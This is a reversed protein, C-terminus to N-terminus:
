AKNLCATRYIFDMDRLRYYTVYQIDLKYNFRIENTSGFKIQELTLRDCIKLRYIRGTIMFFKLGVYNITKIYVEM